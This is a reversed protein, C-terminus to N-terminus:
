ARTPFSCFYVIPCCTLKLHFSSLCLAWLRLMFDTDLWHNFFCRCRGLVFCGVLLLSVWQDLLWPCLICGTYFHLWFLTCKWVLLRAGREREQKEIERARIPAESPEFRSSPTSLSTPQSLPPPASRRAGPPSCPAAPSVPWPPTTAWPVVQHVPQVCWVCVCSGHSCV